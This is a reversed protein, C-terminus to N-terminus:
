MHSGSKLVFVMRCCHTLGHFSHFSVFRNDINERFRLAGKHVDVNVEFNNISGKKITCVLTLYYSEKIYM